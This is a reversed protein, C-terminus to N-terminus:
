YGPVETAELGGRVFGAHAADERALVRDNVDVGAACEALLYGAEHEVLWESCAVAISCNFHRTRPGAGLDPIVSQEFRRCTTLRCKSSRDAPGLSDDTRHTVAPAPNPLDAM